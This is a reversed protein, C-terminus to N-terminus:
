IYSINLVREKVGEGGGNGLHLTLEKKFNCSENKIAHMM